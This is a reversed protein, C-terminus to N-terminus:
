ARCTEFQPLHLAAEHWRVELGHEVNPPTRVLDADTHLALLPHDVDCSKCLADVHQMGKLLFRLLRAFLIDLEGAPAIALDLFTMFCRTFFDLPLTNMSRPKGGSSAATRAMRASSIALSRAKIASRPQVCCSAALRSPMPCDRTDSRTRPLHSLNLRSM